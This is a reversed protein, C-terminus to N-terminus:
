SSHGLGVRKKPLDLVDLFPPLLWPNEPTISHCPLPLQGAVFADDLARFHEIFSSSSSSLSFLESRSLALLVDWTATFAPTTRTSTPLRQM